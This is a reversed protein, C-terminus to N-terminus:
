LLFENGMLCVISTALQSAPAHTYGGGRNGTLYTHGGWQSCHVSGMGIIIPFVSSKNVHHM